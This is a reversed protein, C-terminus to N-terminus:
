ALVEKRGALAIGALLRVLAAHIEDAALPRAADGEAAPAPRASVQRRTLWAAMGQRLLVILGPQGGGASSALVHSRLAEYATVPDDGQRVPASVPTM